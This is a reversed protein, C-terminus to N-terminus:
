MYLGTLIEKFTYKILIEFSISTIKQKKDFVDVYDDVM